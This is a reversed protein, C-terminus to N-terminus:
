LANRKKPWVGGLRPGEMWPRPARLTKLRRTRYGGVTVGDQDAERADADRELSAVWAARYSAWRRRNNAAVKESRREKRYQRDQDLTEFVNDIKFMDMLKWIAAIRKKERTTRGALDGM